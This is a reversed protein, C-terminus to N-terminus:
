PATPHQNWLMAGITAFGAVVIAVMLIGVPSRAGLMLPVAAAGITAAIGACAAAAFRTMRPAWAVTVVWVILTAVIGMWLLRMDRRTSTAGIAGAVFPAAMFLVALVRRM